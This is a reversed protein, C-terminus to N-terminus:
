LIISVGAYFMISCEPYKFKRNEITWNYNHRANPTIKPNTFYKAGFNFGLGEYTPNLPSKKFFRFQVEYYMSNNKEILFADREIKGNQLELNKTKVSSYIIKGVKPSFSFSTNSKRNFMFAYSLGAYTTFADFLNIKKDGTNNINITSDKIITNGFINNIDLMFCGKSKGINHQLFPLSANLYVGSNRLRKSYATDDQLMGLDAYSYNIDFFFNKFDRSRRTKRAEKRRDKVYGKTCGNYKSTGPLNPCDDYKNAIGDEDRDVIPRITKEYDITYTSYSKNSVYNLLTIALQDLDRTNANLEKSYTSYFSELTTIITKIDNNDIRDLAKTKIYGEIKNQLAMDLGNERYDKYFDAGEIIKNSGACLKQFFSGEKMYNECLNLLTRGAFENDRRNRADNIRQRKVEQLYELDKIYCDEDYLITFYYNSFVTKSFVDINPYTLPLESLPRILYTNLLQDNKYFKIKITNRINNTLTFSNDGINSISLDKSNWQFDQSIAHQSYLFYITFIIRKM